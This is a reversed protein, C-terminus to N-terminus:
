ECSLPTSPTRREKKWIPCDRWNPPFGMGQIPVQPYDELLSGLREDWRSQPAILKLCYRCITLVSFVRDNDIEVPLHWAPYRKAFPILPKVGLVRNWLRSHHACINRVASLCLLWSDLVKAPLAFHSAVDQKVQYSCGRFFTLISGFTM